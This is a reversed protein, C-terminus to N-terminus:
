TAPTSDSSSATFSTDARAANICARGAPPAITATWAVSSSTNGCRVSPTPMAAM